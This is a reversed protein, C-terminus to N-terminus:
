QAVRVVPTPPFPSYSSARASGCAVGGTTTSASRKRLLQFAANQSVPTSKLAESKTRGHQSATIQQSQIHNQVPPIMPEHRSQSYVLEPLSDVSVNDVRRSASSVRRSSWFSDHSNSKSIPSRSSRPSDDEAPPPDFRFTHLPYIHENVYATAGSESRLQVLEPEDNFSSTGYVSPGISAKRRDGTVSVVYPNAPTTPGAISAISSNASDMLSVNSGSLSTQLRPLQHPPSYSRKRIQLAEPKDCSANYLEREEPTDFSTRTWDFDCDAEAAHEYCFDIDDEWSADLALPSCPTHQSQRPHAPIDDFPQGIFPVLNDCQSLGENVSFARPNGLIPSHPDRQWSSSVTSPFSKAHRLGSGPTSPRSGKVTASLSEDEFVDSLSPQHLAPKITYASDDPTTMAHPVTPCSWENQSVIFPTQPATFYPSKSQDFPTFPDTHDDHVRTTSEERPQLSQVPIHTAARSSKRPPPVVSAEPSNAFHSTHHSFYDQQPPTRPPTSILGQVSQGGNSYVSSPSTPTPSYPVHRLPSPCASSQESLDHAEIGQLRRQSKQMAQIASLENALENESAKDLSKFQRSHTHTLHQFNYPM